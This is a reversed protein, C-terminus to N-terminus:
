RLRRVPNGAFTGASTIDRVVVAGAGVTVDDCISIGPRIAAGVGILTRAGIQVNGCLHVGPAIHATEGIVCDHDVSAATNIIAGDGIRADAIVVAGASVFVGGGLQISEAVWAKPHIVTELQHGHEHVWSIMKARAQNDGVAVVIPSGRLSELRDRTGSVGIGFLSRGNASPSDDLIIIERGPERALAAEVVVKAHGGSGFVVLRDPM